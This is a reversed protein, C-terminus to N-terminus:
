SIHDLILSALLGMSAIFGVAPGGEEYAEPMMTSAVMAIIGGGAFSSISAMVKESAGDLLMYGLWSSLASVILVSLWLSLITKKRYGSKKLGSTSSLGEPINSIFIAIVLLWSVGKEELISAGIMLSEPIADMVTGIFIAMGAASHADTASRKRGSGGRKSLLFDLGTFVAAGALFGASTSLLGGDRASDGLLEYVAAGILVGTGFSMVYGIIRKKISFLLDVIAGLLVASGAIGGWLLASWM